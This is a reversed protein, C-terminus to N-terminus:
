VRGKQSLVGAAEMIPDLYQKREPPPLTTAALAADKLQEMQANVDNQKLRRTIPGAEQDQAVSENQTVSGQKGPKISNGIMSGFSGGVSAGAMAGAPNFGSGVFGVAAGLGTGILGGLSGGSKKADTKKVPQVAQITM